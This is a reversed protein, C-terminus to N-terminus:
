STHEQICQSKIEYVRDPNLQEVIMQNHTIVLFAGSPNNSRLRRIVEFFLQIGAADLGADIEDVIVCRPQLLLMELLQFRKREGGSFHNFLPRELIARDLGVFTCLEHLQVSFSIKEPRKGQRAAYAEYLFLETSLGDFDPVQQFAVYLGKRSREAPSLTALGVGDFVLSGSVITCALSGALCEAITTKGSGNTGLLCVCEGLNVVLHGDTVVAKTNRTITLHELALLPKNEHM